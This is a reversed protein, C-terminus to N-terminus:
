ECTNSRITKWILYFFNPLMDVLKEKMGRYYWIHIIRFSYMFYLDMCNRPTINPDIEGRALAHAHAEDFLRQTDKRIYSEGRMWSRTPVTIMAAIAVGPNHDYYDLTVWFIKRFIEKSSELGKVHLELLDGIEGIKDDLISFLLDEKSRYYKYITSPSIGSKEYIGRLNVQHFDNHSFLELVVPYLREKLKTPLEPKKKAPKAQKKVTIM